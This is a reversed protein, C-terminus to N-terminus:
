YVNKFTFKHLSIINMFFNFVLAINILIIQKLDISILVSINVSKFIKIFHVSKDAKLTNKKITPRKFKFKSLNNYIHYNVDSNLIWM